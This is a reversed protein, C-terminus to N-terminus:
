QALPVLNGDDLLKFEDCDSQIASLFRSPVRSQANYSLYLQDRARTMAVYLRAAERPLEASGVNRRPMADEVLGLIFVAVFEHGKASEITSIKVRETDYGADDRLQVHDIRLRFLAKACLDRSLQNCGIICIQSANVGERILNAVRNTTFDAEADLTPCKVIAPRQGRRSAYDPQTPQQISDDDVDAFEYDRILGYAAKLIEYTNRYNKKLTYSRGRVALGVGQLSFGRNYITQAGDGVLFLGNEAVGISEGAPTKLKALLSMEVQSLDQVEDVIVCRYWNASPAGKSALLLANHVISAHDLVRARGKGLQGEYHEVGALFAERADRSLPRSRGRRPFTKPDLYGKYDGPTLRTRIYQLESSVFYSLAEADLNQIGAAAFHPHDRVVTIAESEARRSEDESAQRYWRSSESHCKDIVDKAFAGVTSTQILSREAGCLDRLLNDLLKRMSEALTLVLVPEKYRKALFRARHVVVCTKGSGSVGKLRAAGGYDKRAFEKQSPHLFLMWDAWDKTSDLDSADDWTVFMESNAPDLMAAAADAGQLVAAKMRFLDIRTSIHDWERRHAHSLVDLTVSATEATMLRELNEFVGGFDQELASGTVAAIYSKAEASLALVDWQEPTLVRLLPLDLLAPPSELDPEPNPAPSSPGSVQVFDLTGDTPKTVWVYGKHTNLWRDAEDHTGAFLFARIKKPGDVLQVVLRCGDGLDYKEVDARTEGHKTRPISNIEGETEAETMAARARMTQTRKGGQALGRLDKNFTKTYVVRAM